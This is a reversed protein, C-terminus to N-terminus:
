CPLPGPLAPVCGPLVLWSLGHPLLRAPSGMAAKATALFGCHCKNHAFVAPVKQGAPSIHSRPCPIRYHSTQGAAFNGLMWAINVPMNVLFTM